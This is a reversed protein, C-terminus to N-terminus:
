WRRSAPLMSHPHSLVFFDLNPYHHGIFRGGGSHLSSQLGKSYRPRQDDVLKPDVSRHHSAQDDERRRRALGHWRSKLGDPPQDTLATHSLDFNGICANPYDIWASLVHIPDDLAPNASLSM